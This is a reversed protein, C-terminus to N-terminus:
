GNKIDRLVEILFQPSIAGSHVIRAKAEETLIKFVRHENVKEFILHPFSIILRVAREGLGKNLALVFASKVSQETFINQDFVKSVYDTKSHSLDVLFGLTTSQVKLDSLNEKLSSLTKDVIRDIKGAQKTSLSQTQRELKALNDNLISRAISNPSVGFLGM